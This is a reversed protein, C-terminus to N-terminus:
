PLHACIDIFSMLSVYVIIKEEKSLINTCQITNYKVIM